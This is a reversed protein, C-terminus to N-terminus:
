LDIKENGRIKEHVQQGWDDRIPTMYSEGYCSKLMGDYERLVMFNTQDFPLRVYEAMWAAPFVRKKGDYQDTSRFLVNKKGLFWTESIRAYLRVTVRKPIIRGLAFAIGFVMRMLFNYKSVNSLKVTEQTRNMIDLITLLLIKTTRGPSHESIYDCIFIDVWIDEQEPICFQKKIEGRLVFRGPNQILAQQLKRYNERTMAVDADDDWPIFGRERIAGLLTGGHLTYEIEHQRCFADFDCLLELLRGHLTELETNKMITVSWICLM